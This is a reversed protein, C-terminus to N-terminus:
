GSSTCALVRGLSGDAGRKEEHRQHTAPEARRLWGEGEGRGKTHVPSMPSPHESVYTVGQNRSLSGGVPPHRHRPPLRRDHILATLEDRQSSSASVNPLQTAPIPDTRLSAVLPENPETAFARWAQTVSRSARMVRRSLNAFPHLSSDHRKSSLVRPPSPSLQTSPKLIEPTPFDRGGAGDRRNQTTPLQQSLTAAGRVSEDAKFGLGRVVEPLHVELAM